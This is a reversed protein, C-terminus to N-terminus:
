LGGTKIRNKIGTYIWVNSEREFTTYTEGDENHSYPEGVQMCRDTWTAPPLVGLFYMFLEEDIEDGVDAFRSFDLKSDQWQVFTKM